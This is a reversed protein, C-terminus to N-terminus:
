SWGPARAVPSRDARQRERNTQMSPVEIRRTRQTSSTGNARSAPALTGALVRILTSKGAGSSGIIGFQEGAEIVLSLEPFISETQKPFQFGVKSLEISPAKIITPPKPTLSRLVAEKNNDIRASRPTGWIRIYKNKELAM